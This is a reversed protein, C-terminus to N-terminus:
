LSGECRSSCPACPLESLLEQVYVRAGGREQLWLGGMEVQRDSTELLLSRQLAGLGDRAFFEKVGVHSEQHMKGRLLLSLVKAGACRVECDSSELM